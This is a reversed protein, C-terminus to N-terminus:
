PRYALYRSPRRSFIRTAENEALSIATTLRGRIEQESTKGQEDLCAWDEPKRGNIQVFSLHEEITNIKGKIILSSVARRADMEIEKFLLRASALHCNSLDKRLIDIMQKNSRQETIDLASYDKGASILHERIRNAFEKIAVVGYGLSAEDIIRQHLARAAEIHQQASLTM